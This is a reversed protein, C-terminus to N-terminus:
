HDSMLAMMKFVGTQNEGEERNKRGRDEGRRRYALRRHGSLVVTQVRGLRAVQVVRTLLVARGVDARAGAADGGGLDAVLPLTM